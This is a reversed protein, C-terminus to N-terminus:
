IGQMSDDISDGPVAETGLAFAGWSRRLGRSFVVCAGDAFPLTLYPVLGRSVRGRIQPGYLYLVWPTVGLILALMGALFSARRVRRVPVTLRALPSLRFRECM